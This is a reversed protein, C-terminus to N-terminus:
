DGLRDTQFVEAGDVTGVFDGEVETLSIGPLESTTGTLDASAGDVTTGTCSVDVTTLGSTVDATCSLEGDIEHGAEDFEDEAQETVFNRTAVEVADESAEDVADAAETVVSRVDDEVSDATDDSCGFVLLVSVATALWGITRTSRTRSSDM